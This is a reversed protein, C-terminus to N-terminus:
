DLILQVEILLKIIYYLFSMGGIIIFANAILLLLFNFDKSITKYNNLKNKKALVRLLIGLIIILFAM